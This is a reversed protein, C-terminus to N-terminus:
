RQAYFQAFNWRKPEFITKNDIVTFASCIVNKNQQTLLVQRDAPKMKEFWYSFICALLFSM